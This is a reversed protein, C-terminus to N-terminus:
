DLYDPAAAEGLFEEFTRFGGDHYAAALEPGVYRLHWPEPAYGTAWAGGDVYRLIWGHRWANDAIWEGQPTGAIEYITGCAGGECAVVDAALGLQHESHGPRASVADAEAAGLADVQSAYTDAQTEYSRFASFLALEGAGAEEAARALADIADAAEAALSGTGVVRTEAPDALPPAFTDPEVAHRKNVIVWPARPDRLDVCPAAGAAVASRFAEGGGAVQIAHEYRGDALAAAVEESCVEGVAAEAGEAPAADAPAGAAREAAEQEALEAEVAGAVSLVVDRSDASWGLPAGTGDVWGVSMAWGAVVMVCGSFSAAITAVQARRRRTTERRRLERRTALRTTM